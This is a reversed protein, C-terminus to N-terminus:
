RGDAAQAPAFVFTNFLKISDQGLLHLLMNVKRRGPAAELDRAAMYIQFQQKWIRWGEGTKDSADQRFQKPPPIDMSTKSRSTRLKRKTCDKGSSLCYKM